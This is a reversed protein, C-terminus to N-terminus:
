SRQGATLESYFETACFDADMSLVDVDHLSTKESDRCQSGNSLGLNMSSVSMVVPTILDDLQVLNSSVSWM